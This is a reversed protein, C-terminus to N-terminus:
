WVGPGTGRRLGGIGAPYDERYRRVYERALATKGVGGLGAAAIAVAGPEGLLRRLRALEEGRGVFVGSGGGSVRFPAGQQLNQPPEVGYNINVTNNSGQIVPGQTQNAQYATSNQNIQENSPRDAM